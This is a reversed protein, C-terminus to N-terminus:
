SIPKRECGNGKNTLTNNMMRAGHTFPLRARSVDLPEREPLFFLPNERSTKIAYKLNM